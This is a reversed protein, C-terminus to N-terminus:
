ACVGEGARLRAGKSERGAHDKCKRTKSGQPHDSEHAAELAEAIQIGFDAVQEVPLAGEGLRAALTDGAVLEMVIFDAGGERDFEHVTAVGPHNLRSLALAERHFRRRQVDDALAGAPLVKIAVDRELRDDYARYVVGMGGAGLQELIRYHSLTTGIM